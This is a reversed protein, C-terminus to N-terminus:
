LELEFFEKTKERECAEYVVEYIVGYDYFVHVCSFTKCGSPCTTYSQQHVNVKVQKSLPKKCHTAGSEIQGCAGM